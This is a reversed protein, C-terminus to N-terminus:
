LEMSPGIERRLKPGFDKAEVGPQKRTPGSPYTARRSTSKLPRGGRQQRM